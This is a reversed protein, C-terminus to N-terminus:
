RMRAFTHNGFTTASITTSGGALVSDATEIGDKAAQLNVRLDAKISNVGDLPKTPDIPM